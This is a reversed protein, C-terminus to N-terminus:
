GVTLSGRIDVVRSMRYLSVGAVLTPHPGADNGLGNSAVNNSRAADVYGVIKALNVVVIANSPVSRTVLAGAAVMANRGITIGHM